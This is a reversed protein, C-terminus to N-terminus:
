ALTVVAYALSKRPLFQLIAAAGWGAGISLPVFWLQYYHWHFQGPLAVALPAGLLTAGLTLRPRPPVAILGVITLAIAPLAFVLHTSIMRQPSLSAALNN